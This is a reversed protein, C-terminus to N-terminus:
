LTLTLMSSLLCKTTKRLFKGFSGCVNKRLKRLCSVGHDGVPLKKNKLAEGKLQIDDLEQKGCIGCSSVSLLTRKNLYGKGLKEKPIPINIISFGNEKEEIIEFQLNEKGKYIDEAYLLGRILEFDNGPTRMVVTYSNSNINIQLAGEVVIGDSVKTQNGDSILIGDYIFYSKNKLNFESM